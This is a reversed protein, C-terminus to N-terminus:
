GGRGEAGGEGASVWIDGGALRHLPGWRAGLGPCMGHPSAGALGTLWVARPHLLDLVEAHPHCYQNDDGASVVVLAPDARALVDQSIGTRSGHHSTWLVDVPGCSSAAAAVQEAPLDGPVLARVGAVTVCLAIGRANEAAREPPAGAPVVLVDLEPASWRDGAAVGRRPAGAAFYAAVAPTDPAGAPGRDWREGIVLDDATGPLNDLGDIARGFGGVHDNDFHTFIWLDIAAVEHEALAHLLAESAGPPGADIVIAHGEGGVALLAAGQGVDVFRLGPGDPPAIGPGLARPAPVLLLALLTVAIKM